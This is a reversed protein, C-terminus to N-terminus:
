PMSLCIVHGNETSAIIQRGFSALDVIPSNLARSAIVKGTADLSSIGGNDTGAVVIARKDKRIAVLATVPAGLDQRWRLTGNGGFCYLSHSMSGALAEDIDDGDLDATVVKRVEDGTDFQALPKGEASLIHAIGDGGGLIVGRRRSPDFVGTAIDHCIPGMNYAWRRTGDSNLASVWYYHTGCIVEAKGDGDLDSTAGSRSPHVSEYNWLETGDAKFAYFRWNEGGAIIEPRGDGDIDGAMVVNVYPPRRYYKLERKWLERGDASLAAVHHDQRAVVVEDRGDADIDATAIDNIRCGASVKWRLSGDSKLAILAGEATAALVDREGPYLRGAMLRTVHL